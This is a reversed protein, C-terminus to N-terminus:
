WLRRKYNNKKYWEYYDHNTKKNILGRRTLEAQIKTEKRLIDKVEDDSMVHGYEARLKQIQVMLGNLQSSPIKYLQLQFLEISIKRLDQAM